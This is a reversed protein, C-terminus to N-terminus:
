ATRSGFKYVRDKDIQASLAAIFKAKDAFVGQVYIKWHFPKHSHIQITMYHWTKDLCKTEWASQHKNTTEEIEQTITHTLTIEETKDKTIVEEKRMPMIVELNIRDDIALSTVIKDITPIHKMQDTFDITKNVITILISDIKPNIM